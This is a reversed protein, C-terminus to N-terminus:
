IETPISGLTRLTLGGLAEVEPRVFPSRTRGTAPQGAPTHEAVPLESHQDSM